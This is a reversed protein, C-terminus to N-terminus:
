QVKKLTIGVDSIGPLIERKMDHRVLVHISDGSHLEVRGIPFEYQHYSIGKGVSNGRDDTLRCNVTDTLVRDSPYVHQEVILTIATFPYEGTTRLGLTADYVATTDLPSICFSLTDNKEWGAVPTSQYSDYVTPGNCSSLTVVSALVVSLLSFCIIKKM